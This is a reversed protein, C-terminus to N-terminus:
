GPFVPSQPSMKRETLQRHSAGCSDRVVLETEMIVRRAPKRGNEILDILLDVAKIGFQIVPQHITTLPISSLTAMPLDDFGVFAIDEPIRLGAERVARIAGLAISDAAAFVADPRAPLLKQMAAYGGAETFESEVILSSDVKRNQDKLAKRYGEKRDLGVTSNSIGAITGVRRYGLRILHSTANYSAKVNDIDIYSINEAHFPRGAVVLPVDSRALLHIIQQDGHHGSQVLVGDLMGKRYLRPFIKDEDEKSGVLFLALTYDHQNCAQSIGKVLHPYYPDTFLESVSQPLVLGIMWSRQSALTRAAANPHYGTARIVELVHQRVDARVNPQDNVV